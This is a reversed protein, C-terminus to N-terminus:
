RQEDPSPDVDEDAYHRAAADTLFDEFQGVKRQQEAILNMKEGVANAHELTYQENWAIQEDTKDFWMHFGPIPHPPYKGLKEETRKWAADRPDRGGVPLKWLEDSIKQLLIMRQERDAPRQSLYLDLSPSLKRVREINARRADAAEQSRPLEKLEKKGGQIVHLNPIDSPGEKMHETPVSYWASPVCAAFEGACAAWVADVRRKLAPHCVM